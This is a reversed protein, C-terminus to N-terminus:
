QFSIPATLCKPINWQKYMKQRSIINGDCDVYLGERNRKIIFGGGALILNIVKQEVEEISLKKVEKAMSLAIDNNKLDMVSSVSDPLEGAEDSQNNLYQLYNGKEHAIGLKRLKKVSIYKSFYAMAFMHRFADLKGGNEFTDLLKQQKVEKCIVYMERQHKKVKVATFPHVLAWRKEYKSLNHFTKTQASARITIFLVFLYLIYCSRMM